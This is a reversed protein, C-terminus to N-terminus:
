RGLARALTGHKAEIADAWPVPATVRVEIRNIRMGTTVSEDVRISKRYADGTSSHDDPATARARAAVREGEARVAKRIERDTSLMEELGKPDLKIKGVRVSAM